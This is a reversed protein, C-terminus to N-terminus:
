NMYSCFTQPDINSGCFIVGIRKGQIEDNLPKKLLAAIGAACAPEVAMKFEAFIIKMAEILESDTVKVLRDVYQRCLQFSYPEAKPAGLSDAITQVKEIAMPRNAAFSRHMTDAGEPEVGYVMCSPQMLKIANAVGACLGGGGIAVIVADLNAVQEAFELGVTATGLATYYGEFPHIFTRSENRAIEKVLEFGEHINECYVVEAGFAKCMQVRFPNASKPIVVKAHTKMIGAAYAVAIAHNGASIATVGLKLQESKLAMMNLLAGRPKFCGGYQLLELKLFIETSEGFLQDKKLGRWQWSPTTLVKEGLRNRANQIIDITPVNINM